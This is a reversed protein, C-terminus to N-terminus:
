CVLVRSVIAGTDKWRENNAKVFTYNERKMSSNIWDFGYFGQADRLMEIFVVENNRKDDCNANNNNYNNWQKHM